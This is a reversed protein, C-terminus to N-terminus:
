QFLMIIIVIGLLAVGYHWGVKFGIYFFCGINLFPSIITLPVFILQKEISFIDSSIITIVKGSNTKIVSEMSVKGLKDYLSSMLTKRIKLALCYSM